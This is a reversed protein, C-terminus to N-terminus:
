WNEEVPSVTPSPVSAEICSSNWIATTSSLRKDFTRNKESVCVQTHGWGVIHIAKKREKEKAQEDRLSWYWQKMYHDRKLKWIPRWALLDDHENMYVYKFISICDYGIM